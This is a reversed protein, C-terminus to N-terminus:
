CELYIHLAIYRTYTAPFLIPLKAIETNIKMVKGWEILVRKVETVTTVWEPARHLLIRRKLITWIRGIPNFDPPNSVWEFKPISAKRERRTFHASHSAASDDM